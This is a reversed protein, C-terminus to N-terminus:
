RGLVMWSLRGRLTAQRVDRAAERKELAAIADEHADCTRRLEASFEGLTEVIRYLGEIRERTEEAARANNNIVSVAEDIKAANARGTRASESM